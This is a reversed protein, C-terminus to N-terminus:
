LLSVDQQSLNHVEVTIIVSTPAITVWTPTVSFVVPNASSATIAVTLSGTKCITAPTGIAVINTTGFTGNTNEGAFYAAQQTSCNDTTGELAEVHVSVEGGITQGSAMTINFMTVAVGSGTTDLKKHVVYNTAALQATTGSTPNMGPTKLWVHAPTANGTGLGGVVTVDAGAINTALGTLGGGTLSVAGPTLSTGTSAVNGGRITVAGGTNTNGSAGTDDGGRLTAAGGTESGGTSANDGGQFFAAGGSISATSGGTVNGGRFTGTSSSVQSTQDIGGNFTTAANTTNRFTSSAFASNARAIGGSTVSFLSSGGGVYLDVLNGTFSAGANIGFVTGSTSWTSPGTTSNQWISFLPYTTTGSGGTVPTGNVLVASQSLGGSGALQIQGSTGAAGAGAGATGPTLMINGGNGNTSAAAAAGGTGGNLSCNGGAGGNGSTSGGASGIGCNLTLSGGNNGGGTTAPSAAGGTGATETLAQANAGSAGTPTSILLPEDTPGVIQSIAGLGTNFDVAGALNLITGTIDTM